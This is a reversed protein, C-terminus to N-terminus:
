NQRRWEVTSTTKPPSNGLPHADTESSAAAVGSSEDKDVVRLMPVDENVVPGIDEVYEKM